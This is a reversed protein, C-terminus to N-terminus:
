IMWRSLRAFRDFASAKVHDLNILGVRLGRSIAQAAIKALTTTKGVGTPGVLAMVAPAGSNKKIGELPAAVEVTRIIEDALRDQVVDSSKAGEAGLDFGIQRILSLALRKEVGNVVLQDFAEQLAETSFAGVNSAMAGSHLTQGRLDEQQAKLDEVMRRLMRIEEFSSQNMLASAQNSAQAASPPAYSNLAPGAM